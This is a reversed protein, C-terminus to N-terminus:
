LYIWGTVNVWADSEVAWGVQSTSTIVPEIPRRAFKNDDGPFFSPQDNESAAMYRGYMKKLRESFGKDDRARFGLLRDRPWREPSQHYGARVSELVRERLFKTM